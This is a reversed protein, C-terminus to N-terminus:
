ESNARRPKRRRLSIMLSSSVVKERVRTLPSSCNWLIAAAALSPWSAPVSAKM